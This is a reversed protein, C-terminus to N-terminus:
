EGQESKEECSKPEDGDGVGDEVVEVTAFLPAHRNLKKKEFKKQRSIRLQNFTDFKAQRCIFFKFFFCPPSTTTELPKSRHADPVEQGFVKRDLQHFRAIQICAFVVYEANVRVSDQAEVRDGVKTRLSGREILLIGADVRVCQGQVALEFSRNM